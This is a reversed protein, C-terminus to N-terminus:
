QEQDYVIKEREKVLEKSEKVMDRSEKNLKIGTKIYDHTLEQAEKTSRSYRIVAFVLLIGLLVTLFIKLFM